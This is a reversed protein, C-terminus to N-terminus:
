LKCSWIKNFKHIGSANDNGIHNKSIGGEPVNVRNIAPLKQM